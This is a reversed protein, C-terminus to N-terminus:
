TRTPAAADRLDDEFDCMTECIEDCLAGPRERAMATAAACRDLAERVRGLKQLAEVMVKLAEIQVIYKFVPLVERASDFTEEAHTLAMRSREQWVEITAAHLRLMLDVASLLAPSDVDPLVEGLKTCRAKFDDTVSKCIRLHLACGYFARFQSKDLHPM